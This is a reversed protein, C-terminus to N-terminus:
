STSKAADNNRAGGVSLAPGSREEEGNAGTLAYSLEPSLRFDPANLFRELRRRIVSRLAASSNPGATRDRDPRGPVSFWEEVMLTLSEAALETNFRAAKLAAFDAEAKAARVRLDGNEKEILDCWASGYKDFPGGGTHITTTM